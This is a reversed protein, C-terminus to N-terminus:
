VVWNSKSVFFEKGTGLFQHLESKFYDKESKFKLDSNRRSLNFCYKSVEFYNLIKTGIVLVKNKMTIESGFVDIESRLKQHATKGQRKQDSFM